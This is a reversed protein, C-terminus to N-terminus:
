STHLWAQAAGRLAELAPSGPPPLDFNPTGGRAALVYCCYRYAAPFSELATRDLELREGPFVPHIMDKDFVAVRAGIRWAGDAVLSVRDFFRGIATVDCQVGHVPLRMAITVRSEVAARTGALDVHSGGMVHHATMGGGATQICRDVFVRAPGDFWSVTMTADAAYVGRLEDWRESDRFTAWDGVPQLLRVRRLVDADDHPGTM